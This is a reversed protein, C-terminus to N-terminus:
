GLVPDRHELPVRLAHLAQRPVDPQVHRPFHPRETLVFQLEPLLLAGYGDATLVTACMTREARSAKNVDGTGGGIEL